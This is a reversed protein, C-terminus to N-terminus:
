QGLEENERSNGHEEGENRQKAICQKSRTCTSQKQAWEEGAPNITHDTCYENREPRYKKSKPALRDSM